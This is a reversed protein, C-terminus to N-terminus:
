AVQQKQEPLAPFLRVVYDLNRDEDWYAPAEETWAVRLSGTIHLQKPSSAPSAWVLLHAAKTWIRCLEAHYGASRVSQLFQEVAVQALSGAEALQGSQTNDLVVAPLNVELRFEFAPDNSTMERQLRDTFAALLQSRWREVLRACNDLGMKQGIVELTPLDKAPVLIRTAKNHERAQAATIM